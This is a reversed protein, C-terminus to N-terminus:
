VKINENELLQKARQEIELDQKEQAAKKQQKREKLTLKKKKVLQGTLELKKLELKKNYEAKAEYKKRDNFKNGLEFGNKAMANVVILYLPSLIAHVITPDLGCSVLGNTIWGFIAELLLYFGSAFGLGTQWNEHLFKKLKICFKEFKSVKDIGEKYTIIKVCQKLMFKTAQTLTIVSLTSLTAVMFETIGTAILEELFEEFLEYGFIAIITHVVSYNKHKKDKDLFNTNNLKRYQM